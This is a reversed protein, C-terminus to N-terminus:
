VFQGSFARFKDRNLRLSFGDCRKGQVTRVSSERHCEEFGMKEAIHVMSNNGSWTQMYIYDVGNTHLYDIFATLAQYAGDKGRAPMDPM